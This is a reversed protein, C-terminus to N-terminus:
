NIDEWEQNAYMDGVEAETVGAYAPCTAVMDVMTGCSSLTMIIAIIVFVIWGISAIELLIKSVKHMTLEKLCGNM